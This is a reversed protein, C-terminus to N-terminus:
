LNGSYAAAQAFNEINIGGDDPQRHDKTRKYGRNRGKDNGIDDPPYDNGFARCFVIVNLIGDRGLLMM